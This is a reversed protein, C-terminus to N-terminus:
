NRLLRHIPRHGLTPTPLPPLLQPPPLSPLAKSQCSSLCWGGAQEPVAEAGSLMDLPGLFVCSPVAPREAPSMTLFVFLLGNGWRNNVCVHTCVNESVSACVSRVLSISVWLHLSHGGKVYQAQPTPPQSKSGRKRELHGALWVQGEWYFFFFLRKM